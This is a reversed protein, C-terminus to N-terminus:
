HGLAWTGLAWTGINGVARSGLHGHAWSGMHGLQAHTWALMCALMHGVAWTGLFYFWNQDLTKMFFGAAASLLELTQFNNINSLHCM